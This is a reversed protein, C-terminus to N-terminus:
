KALRMIHGGEDSWYVATADVAIALPSTDRALLTAKGGSKPARMVTGVVANDVWYVDTADIAVNALGSMGTEDLLPGIAKTAGDSSIRTISGNFPVCYVDDVDSLLSSCEGKFGPITGPMGGEPVGASFSFESVGLSAFGGLFATSQTVGIARPGEPGEAAVQALLTTPGGGLSVSLVELREAFGPGRTSLTEEIWFARGGLVTAATVTVDDAPSSLVVPASGTKTIRFLRTTDTAEEFYVSDGYVALFGTPFNGQVLTEIPGGTVSMKWIDQGEGSMWYLTAGDSVMVVPAQQILSAVTTGGSMADVAVPAPDPSAEDSSCAVLSACAVVIGVGVSRRM